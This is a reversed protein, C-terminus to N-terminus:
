ASNASCHNWNAFKQPLGPASLSLSLLKFSSPPLSSPFSLFCWPSSKYLLFKWSRTGPHPTLSLTFCSTLTWISRPSNTFHSPLGWPILKCPYKSIEPFSSMHAGELSPLTTNIWKQPRPRLRLCTSLFASPLLQHLHRWSFSKHSTPGGDPQKLAWPVFRSLASSHSTRESQQQPALMANVLSAQLQHADKPLPTSQPNSFRPVRGPCSPRGWLPHRSHPQRQAWPRAAHAPKEEACTVRTRPM